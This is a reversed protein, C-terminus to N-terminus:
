TSNLITKRHSFNKSLFKREEERERQIEVIKAQAEKLKEAYSLNAMVEDRIADKLCQLKKQKRHLLERVENVQMVHGAERREYDMTAKVSDFWCQELKQIYVDAEVLHIATGSAECPVSGETLNQVRLYKGASAMRFILQKGINELVENTDEDQPTALPPLSFVTPPYLSHLPGIDVAHASLDVPYHQLFLSISQAALCMVTEDGKTFANPGGYKNCAQLVGMAGIPFCLTSLSPPEMGKVDVYDDGHCQTLNAAIKTQFVLGVIGRESALPTRLRAKGLQGVASVLHLQMNVRSM